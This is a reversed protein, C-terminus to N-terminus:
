NENKEGGSIKKRKKRGEFDKKSKKAQQASSLNQTSPQQKM